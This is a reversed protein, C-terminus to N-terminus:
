VFVPSHLTSEETFRIGSRLIVFGHYGKERRVKQYSFNCDFVLPPNRTYIASNSDM